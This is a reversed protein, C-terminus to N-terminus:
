SKGGSLLLAIDQRVHQLQIITLFISSINNQNEVKTKNIIDLITLYYINKPKYM